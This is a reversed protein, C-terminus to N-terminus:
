CFVPCVYRSDWSLPTATFNFVSYGIGGWFRDNGVALCLNSGRCIMMLVMCLGFVVLLPVM